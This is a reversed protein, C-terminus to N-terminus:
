YYKTAHSRNRPEIELCETRFNANNAFLLHCNLCLYNETCAFNKLLGCMFRDREFILCSM